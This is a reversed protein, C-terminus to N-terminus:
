KRKWRTGLKSDELIVGAKQLKQRIEDARAFNGKRRMEDREAVWRGIEEDSMLETAAAGRHGNGIQGRLGPAPRQDPDPLYLRGPPPPVPAVAIEWSDDDPVARFGFKVLKEHDNDELVCFIRDWHDLTDLFSARDGARFEGHDMATNGDRVLAFVAGLAEATNLNDDLADEFAQCAARARDQLATNEGASFSEQTLRFRFNRLREISQQAQHLGDFTFNL